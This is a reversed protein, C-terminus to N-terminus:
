YTIVSRQWCFKNVPGQLSNADASDMERQIFEVKEKMVNTVIKREIECMM